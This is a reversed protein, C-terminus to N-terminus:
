RMGYSHKRRSIEQLMKVADERPIGAAVQVLLFKDRASLPEGPVWGKRRLSNVALKIKARTKRGVKAISKRFVIVSIGVLSVIAMLTAAALAVGGAIGFKIKLNRADKVVTKKTPKPTQPKGGHKKKHLPIINREIIQELDGANLSGAGSRSSKTVTTFGPEDSTVTLVVKFSDRGIAGPNLSIEWSFTFPALGDVIVQYVQHQHDASPQKTIKSKLGHFRFTDPIEANVMSETEGIAHKLSGTPAERAPAPTPTPVSVPIKPIGTAKPAKDYEAIKADVWSMIERASGPHQLPLDTKYKTGDIDLRLVIKKAYNTIDLFPDKGKYKFNIWIGRDEVGDFKSELLAIVDDNLKKKEAEQKDFEATRADIWKTIEGLSGPHEAPLDVEYKNSLYELHLDIATRTYVIRLQARKGVHEFEIALYGKKVNQFKKSLHKIVDEERQERVLKAKYSPRTELIGIDVATVRGPYKDFIKKAEEYPIMKALELIRKKNKDARLSVRYDDSYDAHTDHHKLRRELELAPNAKEAAALAAAEEERKKKQEEQKRKIEKIRNILEQIFELLKLAAGAALKSADAGQVTATLAPKKDPDYDLKALIKAEYKKPNLKIQFKIENHGTESSKYIGTAAFNRGSIEATFKAKNNSFREDPEVNPIANLRKVLEEASEILISSADPPPTFKRMTPVPTPQDVPKPEPPNNKYDRLAAILNSKFYINYSHKHTGAHSQLEISAQKEFVTHGVFISSGGTKVKLTMIDHSDDQDNDDYGFDIYEEVTVHLYFKQGWLTFNRSDYTIGGTIPFDRQLSEIIHKYVSGSIEKGM